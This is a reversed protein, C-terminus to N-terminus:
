NQATESAPKADTKSKGVKGGKQVVAVQAGNKAAEKAAYADTAHKAHSQALDATRSGGDAGGGEAAFASAGAMLALGTVLAVFANKMPNM